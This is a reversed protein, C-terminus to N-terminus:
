SCSLNRAWSLQAHILKLVEPDQRSRCLLTFGSWFGDTLLEIDITKELYSLVHSGKEKFYVYKIFPIGALLLDTKNETSFLEWLPTSTVYQWDVMPLPTPKVKQTYKKETKEPVPTALFTHSTKTSLRLFKEHLVWLDNHTYETKLQLGLQESTHLIINLVLHSM